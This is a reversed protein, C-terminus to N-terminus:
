SIKYGPRKPAGAAAYSPDEAVMKEYDKIWKSLTEPKIELEASVNTAPEKLLLFEQVAQKKLNQRFHVVLANQKWIFM